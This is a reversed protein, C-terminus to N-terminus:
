RIRLLTDLMRDVTQLVRANAAYAREIRLLDQLERDTDVGTRAWAENLSAARAAAFSDSDDAALRRVALASTVDAALREVTRLGAPLAASGTPEARALTASLRLLQRSDGPPGAAPAGIGDRLRWLAGGAGPDVAANLALRQALGSEAGLDFAAGADTFLGPAGPPLSPDAQPSAFRVVLDRALADLLAQARPGETDRVALNAALRGGELTRGAPLGNVTVESLTGNERSQAPTVVGAATFAFVSASGDLLVGGQPTFLAIQGFERPVERIPVIPAIADVLSQRQDMLGSADRGTAVLVRIQRNLTEIRGLTDNLLAVDNAIERDARGRETQAAAAAQGITGVLGAAADRVAELLAESEPNAAAAILAADLAAIQAVLSGPAEARGVAAEIARLASAVTGAGASHADAGRRDGLLAADVDRRIGGLAVGQGTGGLVNPALIVERRMYGPTRANAINSSVTEAGASAASLGSVAASLSVSLSM